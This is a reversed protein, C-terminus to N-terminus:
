LVPIQEVIAKGGNLFESWTTTETKTSKVDFEHFTQKMASSIVIRLSIQVTKTIMQSIKWITLSPAEAAELSIKHAPESQFQHM